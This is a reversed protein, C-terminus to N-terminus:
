PTDDGPSREDFVFVHGEGGAMVTLEFRSRDPRKSPVAVRIWGQVQEGPALTTKKFMADVTALGAQEQAGIVGFNAITQDAYSPGGTAGSLIGLVGAIAALTRNSSATSRVDAEVERATWIRLPEGNLTASVDSEQVDFTGTGVNSVELILMVYENVVHTGGPSAEPGVVVAAVSGRSMVYPAGKVYRVEQLEAQKPDMRALKASACGFGLLAAALLLPTRM